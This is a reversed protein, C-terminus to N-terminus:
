NKMVTHIKKKWKGHKKKCDLCDSRERENRYSKVLNWLEGTATVNIDVLWEFDDIVCIWVAGSSSYHDSDVVNTLLTFEGATVIVNLVHDCVEFFFLSKLVTVHGYQHIVSVMSVWGIMVNHVGVTGDYSGTLWAICYEEVVGTM